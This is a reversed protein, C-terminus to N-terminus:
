KPLEVVLNDLTWGTAGDDLIVQFWNQSKAYYFLFAPPSSLSVVIPSSSDPSQYLSLTSTVDKVKLMGLLEPIPAASENATSLTSSDTTSSGLVQSQSQQNKLNVLEKVVSSLESLATDTQNDQSQSMAKKINLLESVKASQIEILSSLKNIVISQSISVSIASLTIIILFANIILSWRSRQWQALLFSGIKKPLNYSM